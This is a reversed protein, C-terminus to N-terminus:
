IFCRTLPRNSLLRLQIVDQIVDLSPSARELSVYQYGPNQLSIEFSPTKDRRPVFQLPALNPSSESRHITRGVPRFPATLHETNRSMYTSNDESRANKAHSPRPSPTPIDEQKLFDNVNIQRAQVEYPTSPEFEYPNRNQMAGRSDYSSTRTLPCYFLSPPVM